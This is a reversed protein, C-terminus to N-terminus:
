KIIVKETKISNNTRLSVIYMGSKLNTPISTVDRLQINREIVTKGTIDTIQLLTNKHTGRNKIHITKQLAYILIDENNTINENVGVANLHLKFRKDNDAINWAFEYSGTKLDYFTSTKTDELITSSNYTIEKIGISYIGDIDNKFGLQIIETEPRVDISLKEDEIFSYLQSLGETTSLFKYADYQLEFDDSTEQNFRILLEDNLNDSIAELLISNDPIEETSKFYATAGNHTRNSNTLNFTGATSAVIFFGQMPPIYQVGGNTASGNNWTAYQTGNWYYVAGWTDDLDGWDISSPYPNGLLNTGDNDYGSVETHTVGISQNGTNPTGTFTYTTAKTMGWLSYGTVPPTLATAPNIIESWSGTSENWTQLYDGLFTNATTVNNPISILHWIDDTISRVVNITGNNTITGNTILSGGSNVTLSAGSEVFIDNCSAGISSTIIPYNSLSSRIYVSNSTTPVSEAAWNAATTWNTGESGDWLYNSENDLNPYGNNYSSSIAWIDDTGNTMEYVFDWGADTYNSQTKMELTTRGTGGGPSASQNSTEIDWFSNVVSESYKKGVFGGVENNLNLGEVYGSSYCNTITGNIQGVFGGISQAGNTSVVYGMCYCNTINAVSFAVGILGGLFNIGDINGTSHCTNVSGGFM